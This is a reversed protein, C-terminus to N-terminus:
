QNITKDAGNVAEDKEKLWNEIELQMGCHFKCKADEDWERVNPSVGYSRTMQIWGRLILISACEPLSFCSLSKYLRLIAETEEFLKITMNM